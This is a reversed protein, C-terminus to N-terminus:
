FLREEPPKIGKLRLYVTTQGRHHTQHEFSKQFTAERSAQWRFVKIVENLQDDKMDKLVSITFDYSDMVAKTLAAKTKFEASRKELEGFNSPSTKGSALAAFGFNDDAMHLMQQGFTRMEATPKFSIVDDNAANLYDLTYAKAREWDAILQEAKSPPATKEKFSLAAFSAVALLAIFLIKGSRM